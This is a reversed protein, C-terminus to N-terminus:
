NGHTHRYEEIQYGFKGALLGTGRALTVLQEIIATRGRTCAPILGYIGQMLRGGGKIAHVIHQRLSPALADECIIQGSARRFSRQVLWSATVRSPPLFEHAIAENCFIMRYGALGLQMFLNTDGGGTLAFRPSFPGPITDLIARRVLVNCTSVFRVPTGTPRRPREYFRGEVAWDPPTEEFVPLMPGSVVDAGFRQQATLLQALWDPDVVEDDDVWAIFTCDSTLAVARNRGFSIGRCPEVAYSIPWPGLAAFRDVVSKASEAVDNDVIVIRVAVGPFRDMRLQRLSDLLRTLGDPRRFTTICIGVQITPTIM